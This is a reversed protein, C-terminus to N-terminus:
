PIPEARIRDLISELAATLEGPSSVYYPEETGGYRALCDLRSAPRKAGYAVVYTRMWEKQLFDAAVACPDAGCSPKGDSIVVVAKTRQLFDPDQVAALSKWGTGPPCPGGSCGLYWARFSRYAEGLPTSGVAILPRVAEDKLRLFTEGPLPLDQLYSAIRFDTTLPDLLYSPALRGLIEESRDNTWDWPIMDGTHFLPGRSDSTDTPWRLSYLNNYRDPLTDTNPEWGACTNTAIADAAFSQDFYTVPDVRSPNTGANDWSLFEAVPTWDVTATGTLTRTSCASNLCREVDVRTQAAAGPAGSLPLYRVRYVTTGVRIFFFVEQGFTQGAKPLRRVRALEWADPLDAPTAPACGIEHDNSGTDCSWLYGFVEQAGAAPFAGWGPVTVGANGAQYLWHKARVRLADQNYTAFGFQIDATSL